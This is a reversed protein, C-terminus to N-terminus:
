RRLRREREMKRIQQPSRKKVLAVMEHFAKLQDPEQIAKVMRAYAVDIQQELEQDYKLLAASDQATASM